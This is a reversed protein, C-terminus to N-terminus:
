RDSLNKSPTPTSKKELERKRQLEYAKIEDWEARVDAVQQETLDHECLTHHKVIQLDTKGAEILKEVKDLVERPSKNGM